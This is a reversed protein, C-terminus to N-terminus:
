RRGEGEAESAALRTELADLREALESTEILERGVQVARCVVNAAPADTVSLEVALRLGDRLGGVSDFSLAGLRERLDTAAEAAGEQKRRGNRGREAAATPSHLLCWPEGPLTKRGCRAGKILGDCSRPTTV